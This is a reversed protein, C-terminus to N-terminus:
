VISKLEMCCILSSVPVARGTCLFNFEKPTGWGVPIFTM